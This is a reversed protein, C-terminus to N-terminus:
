YAVNWDILTIDAKSRAAAMKSRMAGVDWMLFSAISARHM